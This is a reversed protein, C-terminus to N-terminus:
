TRLLVPQVPFQAPISNTGVILLIYTTFTFRRSYEEVECWLSSCEPSLVLCQGLSASMELNQQGKVIHSFSMEAQEWLKGLFSNLLLPVHYVGLRSSAFEELRCSSSKAVIVMIFLMVTRSSKCFM